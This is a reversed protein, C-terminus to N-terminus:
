ESDPSTDAILRVEFVWVEFARLPVPKFKLGVRAYGEEYTLADLNM